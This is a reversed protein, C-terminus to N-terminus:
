ILEAWSLWSMVVVVLKQHHSGGLPHRSDARFHLRPHIWRTFKFKQLREREMIYLPAPRWTLLHIHLEPTKQLIRQLFPLLTWDQTSDGQTPQLQTQTHLDWGLIYISHMAKECAHIFAHFHAEGDCYLCCDNDQSSSSCNKETWSSDQRTTMYNKDM